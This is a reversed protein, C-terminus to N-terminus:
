RLLNRMEKKKRDMSLKHTHTHIETYISYLIERKREKEIRVREREGVCDYKPDIMKLYPGEFKRTGLFIKERVSSENKSVFM